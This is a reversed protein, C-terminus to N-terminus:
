LISNKWFNELNLIIELQVAMGLKSKPSAYPSVFFCGDAETFGALWHPDPIGTYKVLPRAVPITHPFLAKLEGSNGTNLSAKLNIIKQLGDPTM